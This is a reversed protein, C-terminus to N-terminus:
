GVAAGEDAAAPIAPDAQLVDAVGGGPGDAARPGRVGVSDVSHREGRAPVGQDASRIRVGLTSPSDQPDAQFLRASWEQRQGVTLLELPVRGGLLLEVPGAVGCALAHSVAPQSSRYSPPVTPEYSPM